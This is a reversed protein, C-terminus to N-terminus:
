AALDVYHRIMDLVAVEDIQFEQAVVDLTEGAKFLSVVDMVRTRTGEIVPQGYAIRPDAVIDAYEYVKLKISQPYDDSAWRILQLVEDIIKPIAIQKDKVRIWEADNKETAYDILIDKGDTGLRGKKLLELGLEQRVAIMGSTIAQLSLGLERFVIFLQAEVLAAFPLSPSKPTEPTGVTLLSPKNAWYRFTTPKIGLYRAAQAITYIPETFRTDFM